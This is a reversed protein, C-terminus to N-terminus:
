IQFFVNSILAVTYLLLLSFFLVIISLGFMLPDYRLLPALEMAAMGSYHMTGIGAGLLVSCISLVKLNGNSNVLMSVAYQCAILAPLFSVLTITPDYSINTCLSFALMGIFHMSWIGASFVIAATINALRQYGPFKTKKALDILRTTFFAAFIAILVSMSVLVPDYVGNIILSPDQDTIFFASLM